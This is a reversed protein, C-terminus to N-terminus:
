LFHLYRVEVTWSYQKRETYIIAPFVGKHASAIIYDASEKEHHILFRAFVICCSREKKGGGKQSAIRPCLDKYRLINEQQPVTLREKLQNIEHRIWGTM